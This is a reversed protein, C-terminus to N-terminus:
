PMTSDITAKGTGLDHLHSDSLAREPQMRPITGLAIKEQEIADMLAFSAQAAQAEHVNTEVSRTSGELSGSKEMNRIYASYGGMTESDSLNNVATLSQADDKREYVAAGTNIREVSGGYKVDRGDSVSVVFGGAM